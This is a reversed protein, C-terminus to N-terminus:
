DMVDALPSSCSTPPPFGNDRAFALAFQHNFIRASRLFGGEAFPYFGWRSNGCSIRFMNRRILAVTEGDLRRILPKIKWKYFLWTFLPPGVFALAALNKPFYHLLLIGHVWWVAVATYMSLPWGILRPYRRPYSAHRVCVSCYPVAVSLRRSKWGGDPLTEFGYSDGMVAETNANHGCCPCISPFYLERGAKIRCDVHFGFGPWSRSPNREYADAVPQTLEELGEFFCSHPLRLTLAVLAAPLFSSLLIALGLVAGDGFTAQCIALPGIPLLIAMCLM